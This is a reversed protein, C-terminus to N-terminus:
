VGSRPNSGLRDGHIAMAKNVQWAVLIFGLSLAFVGAEFLETNLSAFPVLADLLGMPLAYALYRKKGSVAALVCLVGWAVHALMSSVRELTGILVSPLLTTPPLFLSPEAAVLQSYTSAATSTGSALLLYLVGLNLMSLIGLLIGNEWFALSLGYPVADSAKLGWRRVAYWAFVYALGVELLVTQLGFYLGLGVSTQGVEAVVLSVTPIQIAYKGGIALFYAGASLLFVIGRFGRRYWWFILAGLSIALALTPQLLLLLDINQL